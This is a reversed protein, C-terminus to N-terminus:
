WSVRVENKQRRHRILVPYSCLIIPVGSEQITIKIELAFKIKWGLKCKTTIGLNQFM